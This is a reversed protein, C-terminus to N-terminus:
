GHLSGGHKSFAREFVYERVIESDLNTFIHGKNYPNDPKEQFQAMERNINNDRRNLLYETKGNGNTLVDFLIVARFEMTRKDWESIIQDFTTRSFDDDAETRAKWYSALMAKETEVIDPSYAGFVRSDYLEDLRQNLTDINVEPLSIRKFDPM